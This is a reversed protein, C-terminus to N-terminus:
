PAPVSVSRCNCNAPNRFCSSSLSLGPSDVSGAAALPRPGILPAWMPLAPTTSPSYEIHSCSGMPGSVSLLTPMLSVKRGSPPRREEGHDEPVGAVGGGLRDCVVSGRSAELACPQAAAKLFRPSIIWACGVRHPATMSAMHRTSPQAIWM